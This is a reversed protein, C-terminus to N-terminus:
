ALGDGGALLLAYVSGLYDSYAFGSSDIQMGFHFLMAVSTMILVFISIMNGAPRLTFIQSARAAM